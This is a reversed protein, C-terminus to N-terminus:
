CTRMPLWARAINRRWLITNCKPWTSYRAAQVEANVRGGDLILQKLQLFGQNQQSVFPTNTTTHSGAKSYLGNATLDPLYGSRAIGITANNQDVIARSTTLAPSSALAISEADGLSLQTPVPSPGTEPHWPPATPLFAPSPLGSPQPMDAPAPTAVSRPAPTPKPAAEAFATVTLLATGVACLAVFAPIKM